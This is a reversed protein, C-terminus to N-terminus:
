SPSERGETTPLLKESREASSVWTQPHLAKAWERGEKPFMLYALGKEQGVFTGALFESSLKRGSLFRM